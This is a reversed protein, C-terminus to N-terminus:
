RQQIEQELASMENRFGALDYSRQLETLESIYRDIQYRNKLRKVADFHQPFVLETYDDTMLGCVICGWEWPWKEVLIPLEVFQPACQLSNAHDYLEGAPPNLAANTFKDDCEEFTYGSVNMSSGGTYVVTGKWGFLIAQASSLSPILALMFLATLWLKTIRKRNDSIRFEM